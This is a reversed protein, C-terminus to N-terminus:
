GLGRSLHMLIEAVWKADPLKSQPRPREIEVRVFPSTTVILNSPEQKKVKNKWYRFTALSLGQSSCFARESGAFGEAEEIRKRWHETKQQKTM